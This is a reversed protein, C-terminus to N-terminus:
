GWNDFLTQGNQSFTCHTRLLALTLETDHTELAAVIARHANVSTISASDPGYFKDYFLLYLNIQELLTNLFSSLYRNQSLNALTMHFQKNISLYEWHNQAQIARTEKEILDTLTGIVAAEVKPMALQVALREMENRLTYAAEVDSLQPQCVFAGRNPIIHILGDEALRKLALRVPTRSAQFKTSIQMEILQAGPAFQRHYIAQKLENYIQNEISSRM